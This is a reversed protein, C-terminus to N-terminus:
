IRGKRVASLIKSGIPRFAEELAAAHCRGAIHPLVGLIRVGSLASVIRPNDALVRADANDLNNFIVGLIRMKRARLAELSLLIHNIAGVRNRAVLLVALDLERVIDLLFRRRSFPVLVGGAGEVVVMDSHRKLARFSRAIYRQDIRRGELRSALHPSCAAKFVYPAIRYACSRSTPRRRGMARLHALVDSPVPGREGTAVWKQTAVSLGRTGLYRAVCATVTTKGVGSDTGAVFIGNM